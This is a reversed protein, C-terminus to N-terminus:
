LARLAEDLWGRYWEIFSVRRGDIEVPSLGAEDAREDNWIHGAEPGTVVLWQRLACGLHCIPIAGNVHRSNWYHAAEWADVREMFADEQREDLEVGAEPEPKGTLDNWPATHPFPKSLEGVFGDGEAWPKCDHADDMEGLKFVGYGPGAGGDGVHLLFGRYAEPLRICHAAEFATVAAEDLPPNLKFHHSSAGFVKSAKRSGRLRALGRVIEAHQPGLPTDPLKRVTERHKSFPWM